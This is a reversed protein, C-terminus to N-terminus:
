GSSGEMSPPMLPGILTDSLILSAGYVGILGKNCLGEWQQRLSCLELFKQHHHHVSSFAMLPEEADMLYLSFDKGQGEWTQVPQSLCKGNVEQQVWQHEILEEL